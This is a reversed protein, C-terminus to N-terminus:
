IGFNLDFFELHPHLPFLMVYLLSFFECSTKTTIQPISFDLLKGVLQLSYGKGEMFIFVM